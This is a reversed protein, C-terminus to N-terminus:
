GYKLKMMTAQSPDSEALKELWDDFDYKQDNLWWSVDGLGEDIIAPGDERHIEGHQYWEQSGDDYLVAPGDIRHYRGDLHYVTFNTGGSIGTFFEDNYFARDEGRHHRWIVKSNDVIDNTTPM